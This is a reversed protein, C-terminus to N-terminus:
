GHGAPHPTEGTAPEVVHADLMAAVQEPSCRMIIDLVSLGPVFGPQGQDYEPFRPALFHLRCGQAAFETEDYLTRGGPANVYATAGERRCIDRVREPGKLAANGYVSSTPVLDSSVGLYDLTAEVSLRAMEGIGQVPAELVRRFLAMGPEVFTADKYAIRLTELLKGRWGSPHQQIGVERIPVFSSAGETPITFYRAEGRYLFRNRNIWGSKIYSVDDYFVFKDVARILQFYGLYPFLYPQMIALKM